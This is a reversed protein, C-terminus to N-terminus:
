GIQTAERDALLLSVPASLHNIKCYQSGQGTENEGAADQKKANKIDTGLLEAAELHREPCSPSTFLFVAPSSMVVSLGHPIIPHDASYDKPQFKQVNGSIPYSMGHCLHVGANGFGVGAMTSALHMNSRAEIDDPQYVSRKFYKRMTQLAYRAWVDSIPNQGQYAPRLIPNSPCPERETYHIATFSELAHCLVDFRLLAGALTSEVLGSRSHQLSSSALAELDMMVTRLWERLFM